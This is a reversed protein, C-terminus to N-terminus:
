KAIGELGLDSIDDMKEYVYSPLSLIQEVRYPGPWEDKLECEALIEMYQLYEVRGQELVDDPIIYVAVAHPAESEVVIEVMKPQVGKIAQYLDAYFSWQWFYLLKASQGGFQYERCDRSTKLGVIVPESNQATLWDVRGRCARGHMQAELVVEPEGSALYPAAVPDSRVAGQIAHVLEYEDATIIVKGPNAARFSDWWQGSRPAMKGADTRRAWVAYDRSFREPELVSTHAATGLVMPQTDRPHTLAWQYHKPSRKLEKLRSISLGASAHYEAAPVRSSISNVGACGSAVADFPCRANWSAVVAYLEHRRRQAQLVADSRPNPLHEHTERYDRNAKYAKYRYSDVKATSKIKCPTDILTRVM